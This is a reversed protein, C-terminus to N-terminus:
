DACSLLVTKDKTKGSAHGTKEKEGCRYVVDFDKWQEPAPDAIEKVINKVKFECSRKGDCASKVYKTVNGLAAKTANLGYSASVVRIAPKDQACLSGCFVLVLGCGWKSTNKM